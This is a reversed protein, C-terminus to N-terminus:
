EGTSNLGVLLGKEISRIYAQKFLTFPYSQHDKRTPSDLPPDLIEPCVRM